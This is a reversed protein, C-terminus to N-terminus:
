TKLDFVDHFKWRKTNESPKFMMPVCKALVHTVYGSFALMLIIYYRWSRMRHEWLYNADSFICSFEFLIISPYTMNDDIIMCFNLHLPYKYVACCFLSDAETM